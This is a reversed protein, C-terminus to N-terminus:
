HSHFTASADLTTSEGLLERLERELAELPKHVEGVRDFHLAAREALPTNLVEIHYQWSGAISALEGLLADCRRVLEAPLDMRHKELADKCVGACTRLEDLDRHVATPSTDAFSTTADLAAIYLARLAIYCTSVADFRRQMRLAAATQHEAVERALGAKVRELAADSDRKLNSKWTELEREYEARISARM